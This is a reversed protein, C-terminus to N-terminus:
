SGGRLCRQRPWLIWAPDPRRRGAVVHAASAFPLHDGVASNMAIIITMASMWSGRVIRLRRHLSSTANPTMQSKAVTYPASTIASTGTGLGVSNIVVKKSPTVPLKVRQPLAHDDLTSNLSASLATINKPRPPGRDPPVLRKQWIGPAFFIACSVHVLLITPLEMSNNQSIYALYGAYIQQVAWTQSPHYRECARGHRASGPADVPLGSGQLHQTM